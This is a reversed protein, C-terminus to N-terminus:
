LRKKYVAAASSLLPVDVGEGPLNQVWKFTETHWVGSLDPKGDPTKPSPATLDVKGDPTHPIGPYTANLWQAHAAGSVTLMLALGAAVSEMRRLASTLFFVLQGRRQSSKM